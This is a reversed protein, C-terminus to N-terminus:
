AEGMQQHQLTHDDLRTFSELGLPASAQPLQDHAQDPLCSPSHLCVRPLLLLRPCSTM